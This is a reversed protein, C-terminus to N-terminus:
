EGALAKRARTGKDYISAEPEAGQWNLEDAYFELAERLRKNEDVIKLIDTEDLLEAVTIKGLEAIRQIRKANPLGAGREWKSVLGKNAIPNFKKGFMEGSLGLNLRINKIRDGIIKSMM